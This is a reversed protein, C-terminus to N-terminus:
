QVSAEDEDEEQLWAMRYGQVKQIDGRTKSRRRTIIVEVDLGAPNIENQLKLVHGGIMSSSLSIYEGALRLNRGIEKATLVDGGNDSANALEKAVALRAQSKVRKRINHLKDRFSPAGEPINLTPPQLAPKIVKQFSERLEGLLVNLQEYVVEPPNGKRRNRLIDIISARLKPNNLAQARKKMANIESVFGTVASAAELGATEEESLKGGSVLLSQIASRVGAQTVQGKTTGRDAVEFKKDPNDLIL